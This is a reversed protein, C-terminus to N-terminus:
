ENWGSEIVGDYGITRFKKSCTEIQFIHVYLFSDLISRKVTYEYIRTYACKSENHYLACHVISLMYKYCDTLITSSICPIKATKKNKVKLM